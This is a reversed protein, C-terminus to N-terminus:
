ALSMWLKPLRSKPPYISIRATVSNALCVWLPCLSVWKAFQEGERLTSEIIKFNSVNSLFDGVPKYPSKNHPHPNHASQIASFGPHDGNAGNTGNVGNAQGSPGNVPTEEVPPCM